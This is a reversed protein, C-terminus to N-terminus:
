RVMQGANLALTMAFAIAFTVSYVAFAVGIGMLWGVANKRTVGFYVILPAPGCCLALLLYNMPSRDMFDVTGMAAAKKRQINRDLMIIGATAGFYFLWCVITVIPNGRM